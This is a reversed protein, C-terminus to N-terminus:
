IYMYSCIFIDGSSNYTDLTRSKIMIYPNYISLKGSSFSYFYGYIEIHFYMGVNIDFHFQM